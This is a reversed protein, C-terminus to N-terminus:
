AWTKSTAPPRGGKSNSNAPPSSGAPSSTSCSPSRPLKGVSARWSGYTKWARTVSASPLVSTSVNVSWTTMRGSIMPVGVIGSPAFSKAYVKGSASAEGPPPEGKVQDCTNGSRGPSVSRAAIPMSIVGGPTRRLLDPNGPGVVTPSKVNRTVTVSWALWTASGRAYVSVTFSPGTSALMVGFLAAAPPGNMTAPSFKWFPAVSVNLGPWGLSCVIAGVKSLGVCSRNRAAGASETLPNTGTLTV